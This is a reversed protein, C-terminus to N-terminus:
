YLVILYVYKVRIPNAELGDKEIKWSQTAIIIYSHIRNNSPCKANHLRFHSFCFNLNCLGFQTTEWGMKCALTNRTYPKPTPTNM